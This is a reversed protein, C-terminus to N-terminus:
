PREEIELGAQYAREIKLPGASDEAEEAALMLAAWAKKRPGLAKEIREALIRARPENNFAIVCVGDVLVNSISLPGSEVTKFTVWPKTTPM